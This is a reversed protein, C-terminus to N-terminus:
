QEIKKIQFSKKEGKASRTTTTKPKDIPQSDKENVDKIVFGKKKGQSRPREVIKTVKNKNTQAPAPTPTQAATQVTADAPLEERNAERNKRKRNRKTKTIKEKEARTKEIVFYACGFNCYEYLYDELFSIKKDQSVKSNNNRYFGKLRLQDYGWDGVIYDYKSLISTYRGALAEPDFGERHNISLEYEQTGVLLRKDDLLKVIEEEENRDSTETESDDAITELLSDVQTKLSEDLLEKKDM